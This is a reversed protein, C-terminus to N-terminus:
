TVWASYELVDLIMYYSQTFIAKQLQINTNVKTSSMLIKLSNEFFFIM